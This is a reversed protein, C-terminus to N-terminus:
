ISLRLAKVEVEVEVGDGWNTGLRVVVGIGVRVGVEVWVLIWFADGLQYTGLRVGVVVGLGSGLWLRM